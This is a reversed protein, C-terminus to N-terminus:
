QQPQCSSLFPLLQLYSMYIVHTHCIYSLLIVYILCSYSRSIVPTYFVYFQLIVSNGYIPKVPIGHKIFSGDIYIVLSVPVCNPGFRVQALQFSVASNSAGFEREGTEENEVMEFSFHQHGAMRQDGLVERLVEELSRIWLTLDQDGDLDSERMNHSTFHGKAIAAAVRKHLDINVDEVKFDTSKILKITSILEDVTWKYSIAHKYLKMESYTFAQLTEDSAEPICGRATAEAFSMSEVEGHTGTPDPLTALLTSLSRFDSDSEKCLGAMFADLLAQQDPIDM